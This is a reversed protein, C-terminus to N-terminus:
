LHGASPPRTVGLGLETINQDDKVNLHITAYNTLLISTNLHLDKETHDSCNDIHTLLNLISGFYSVYQITTDGLISCKKLIM